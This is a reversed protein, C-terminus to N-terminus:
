VSVLGNVDKFFQRAPHNNLMQLFENTYGREVIYHTRKAGLPNCFKRCHKTFGDRTTISKKYLPCVYRYFHGVEHQKRRQVRESRQSDKCKNTWKCNEVDCEENTSTFIRKIPNQSGVVIADLTQFHRHVDTFYHQITIHRTLSIITFFTHWKKLINYFSVLLINITTELQHLLLLLKLIPLLLM